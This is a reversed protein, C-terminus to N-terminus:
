APWRWGEAEILAALNHDGAPCDAEHVVAQHNTAAAMMRRLHLRGGCECRGTLTARRRRDLAARIAPPATAPVGAVVFAVEGRKWLEGGGPLDAVLTAPQDLATIFTQELRGRRVGRRHRRGNSM